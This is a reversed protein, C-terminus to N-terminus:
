GRMCSLDVDPEPWPKTSDPLLDNGSCINITSGTRHHWIADSPWMSNIMNSNNELRYHRVELFFRWLFFYCLTPNWVTQIRNIVPRTMFQWLSHGLGSYVALKLCNLVIIIIIIMFIIFYSSYHHIILWFSMFQHYYLVTVHHFHYFFLFKNEANKKVYVIYQLINSVCNWVTNSNLVQKHCNLVNQTDSVQKHCSPKYRNMGHYIGGRTQFQQAQFLMIWSM